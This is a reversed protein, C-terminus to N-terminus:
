RKWSPAEGPHEVGVHGILYAPKVREGCVRCPPGLIVDLVIGVVQRTLHRM